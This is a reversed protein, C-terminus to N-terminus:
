IFKLVMQNKIQYNQNKRKEDQIQDIIETIHMIIFKTYFYNELNLKFSVFDETSLTCLQETQKFKEILETLHWKQGTNKREKQWKEYIENWSLIKLSNKSQDPNKRQLNSKMMKVVQCNM